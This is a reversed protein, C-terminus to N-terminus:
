AAIQPAGRLFTQIVTREPSLIVFDASRGAAIDGIKDDLGLMRAPNRTALPMVEALAAGTFAAFNRLGTDLTLTSGALTNEEILCVGGEVRVDLEGLKYPGDPMGAASMADTILIGRERGKMKWYIRVATPEVHLGDCILEAFLGDNTLVEGVLGPERHDFTRMANFTHTASAAGLQVGKRAEALTANSHGLSVRIGLEVARAITEDAGPLEPAITLLRVQGEAAQWMQNLLKVSPKQLLREPHAGRKHPSLFPGELHIGVPQAGLQPRRMELALGELSRLTMDMDASVTTALYAGVGHRALFGGITALAQPTAEMIDHGASGHIHVDFLAPLITAGPFDLVEGNPLSAADAQGIETVAGDEVVVFPDEIARQATM